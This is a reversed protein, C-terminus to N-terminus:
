LVLRWGLRLGYTRYAPAFATTNFAGYYRAVAGVFFPSTPPEFDVGLGIVPAIQTAPTTRPVFQAPIKIYALGIEVFPSGNGLDMTWRGSLGVVVGWRDPAFRKLDFLAQVGWLPHLQLALSAGALFAHRSDPQTGLGALNALGPELALRLSPM